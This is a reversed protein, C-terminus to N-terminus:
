RPLGGGCGDDRGYYLIDSDWNGDVDEILMTLYYVTGQTIAIPTDLLFDLYFDNSSGILDGDTDFDYDPMYRSSLIAGPNVGAGADAYVAFGVDKSSQDGVWTDKAKMYVLFHTATGSTEAQLRVSKWAYNTGTGHSSADGIDNGVLLVGNYDLSPQASVLYINILVLGFILFLFKKTEKKM